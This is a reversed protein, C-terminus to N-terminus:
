IVNNLIHLIQEKVSLGSSSHLLITIDQLVPNPRLAQWACVLADAPAQQFLSMAQHTIRARFARSSLKM